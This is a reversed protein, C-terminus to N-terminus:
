TFHPKKTSPLEAKYNLAEAGSLVPLKNQLEKQFQFLTNLFEPFPGKAQLLNMFGCVCMRSQKIFHIGIM